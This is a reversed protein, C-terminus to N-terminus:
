DKRVLRRCSSSWRFAIDVVRVSTKRMTIRLLPDGNWQRLFITVISEKRGDRRQGADTIRPGSL